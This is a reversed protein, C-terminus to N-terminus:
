GAPDALLDAWEPHQSFAKAVYSCQPFIRFGRDRADAILAEVLAGAIGKGRAEPPVYTHTAIRTTGRAEWELEAQRRAGPVQARYAGRTVQDDRTVEISQTM